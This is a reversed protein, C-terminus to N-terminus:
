NDSVVEQKILEEGKPIDFGLKLWGFKLGWFRAQERYVNVNIFDRKAQQTTTPKPNFLRHVAFWLGAAVAVVCLVSITRLIAHKTANAGAIFLPNM